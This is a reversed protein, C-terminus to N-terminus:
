LRSQVCAAGAVISAIESTGRFILNGSKAQFEGILLVNKDGGRVQENIKSHLM